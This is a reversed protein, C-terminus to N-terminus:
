TLGAVKSIADIARAVGADIALLTQLVSRGTTTFLWDVYITEHYPKPGRGLPELTNRDVEIGNIIVTGGFSVGGKGPQYPMFGIGPGGPNTDVWRTEDRTQPTLQEHKNENTLDRLDALWAHAYPQHLSIEAAIDPRAARVGPMRSDISGNFKAASPALPYYVNGSPTGYADAIARALYELSSRENELVNKILARLRQPVSKAHLAGEYLQEVEQLYEAALAQVAEIDAMIAMVSTKVLKRWGGLTNSIHTPLSPM